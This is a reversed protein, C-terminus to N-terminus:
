CKPRLQQLRQALIENVGLQHRQNEWVLPGDPRALQAAISDSRCGQPFLFDPHGHELVTASAGEALTFIQVGARLAAKPSTVAVVSEMRDNGLPRASVWERPNNTVQAFGDAPFTYVYHQFSLRSFDHSPEARFLALPSNPDPELTTLFGPSFPLAYVLAQDHRHTAFLWQATVGNKNQVYEQVRLENLPQPHRSGHFLLQETM